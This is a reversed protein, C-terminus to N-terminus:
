FIRLPIPLLYFAASRVGLTTLEFEVLVFIVRSAHITVSDQAPLHLPSFTPPRYFSPSLSPLRISSYGPAAPLFPERSEPWHASLTLSQSLSRQLCCPRFKAWVKVRRLTKLGDSLLPSPHIDSSQQLPRARTQIPWDAPQSAAHSSQLTGNEAMQKYIWFGSSYETAAM